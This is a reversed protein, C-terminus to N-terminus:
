FFNNRLCFQCYFRNKGSLRQNIKVNIPFLKIQKECFHCVRYICESLEGNPADMISIIKVPSINLQDM